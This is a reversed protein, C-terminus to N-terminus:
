FFDQHTLKQPSAATTLHPTGRVTVYARQIRQTDFKSCYGALAIDLSEKLLSVAGSWEGGAHLALGVIRGAIAVLRQNGAAKAAQLHEQAQMLGQKVSGQAVLIEASVLPVQDLLPTATRKASSYHGTFQAAAQVCGADLAAIALNNYTLVVSDFDDTLSAASLAVDRYERAKPVAGLHYYASALLSACEAVVDTWGNAIAIHLVRLTQTEMKGNLGNHKWESISNITHVALADRSDLEVCWANLDEIASVVARINRYDQAALFKKFLAFFLRLITRSVWPPTASQLAVRSVADRSEASSLPVADSKAFLVNVLNLALNLCESRPRDDLVCRRRIEELTALADRHKNFDCQMVALNCLALLATESNVSAVHERVMAAADRERGDRFLALARNAVMESLSAYEMPAAAPLALSLARLWAEHRERALHRPSIAFEAALAAISESGLDCRLLCTAQRVGRQSRGAAHDDAQITAAAHAIRRRLEGHSLKGSQIDPGVLPNGLLQQEDGLHRFL